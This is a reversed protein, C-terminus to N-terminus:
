HYVNVRAQMSRCAAIAKTIESRCTHLIKITTQM